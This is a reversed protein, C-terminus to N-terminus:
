SLVDSFPLAKGVKGDGTLIFFDGWESFFARVQSVISQTHAIFKLDTDLITFVSANFIDEARSGGLGRLSVVSHKATIRRPLSSPLTIRSCELLARLVRSHMAPVEVTQVMTFSQM